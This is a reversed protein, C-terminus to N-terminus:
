FTEKCMEFSWIDIYYVKRRPCQFIVLVKTLHNGRSYVLLIDPRTSVHYVSVTYLLPIPANDHRRRLFDGLLKFHYLQDELLKRCSIVTSLLERRCRLMIETDVSNFMWYRLLDRTLLSDTRL